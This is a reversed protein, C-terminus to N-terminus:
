SSRGASRLRQSGASLCNLAKRWIGDTKDNDNSLKEVQKKEVIGVESYYKRVGWAIAWLCWISHYTKDKITHEYFEPMSFGGYDFDLAKNMPYFEHHEGAYYLVDERLREWIDIAERLTPSGWELWSRFDERVAECFMEPSYESEGGFKSVSVLKEHWYHVNIDLDKVRHFFMFMDNTRAFVYTGMDGSFCLHGPWTTLRFHLTNTGPRKFLISRFPPDDKEVIMQHSAVDRLFIEKTPHKM